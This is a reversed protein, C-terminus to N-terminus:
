EVMEYFRAFSSHLTILEKGQLRLDEETTPVVGVEAERPDAAEKTEEEVEATESHRHSLDVEALVPLVVGTM